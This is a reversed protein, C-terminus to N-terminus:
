DQTVALPKGLTSAPVIPLYLEGDFPPKYANEATKTDILRPPCQSDKPEL